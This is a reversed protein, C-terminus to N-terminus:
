PFILSLNDSHADSILMVEIRRFFVVTVEKRRFSLPFHLSAIYM